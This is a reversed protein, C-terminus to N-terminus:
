TPLSPARRESQWERCFGSFLAGDRFELTEDPFEAIRDHLSKKKLVRESGRVRQPQAHVNTQQCLAMEHLPAPTPRVRDDEFEHFSIETVELAGDSDESSVDFGRYREM